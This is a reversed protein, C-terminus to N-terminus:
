FFVPFNTEQHYFKLISAMLELVHLRPVVYLLLLLQLVVRPYFIHTCSINVHLLHTFFFSYIQIFNDEYNRNKRKTKYIRTRALLTVSSQYTFFKFALVSIWGCCYSNNWWRCDEFNPPLGIGTAHLITCPRIFHTTGCTLCAQSFFTM